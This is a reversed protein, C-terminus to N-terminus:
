PAVRLVSIRGPKTACVPHIDDHEEHAFEDAYYDVNVIMESACTDKCRATSVICLFLGIHKPFRAM